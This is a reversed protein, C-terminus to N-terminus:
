QESGSAADERIEDLSYTFGARGLVRKEVEGVDLGLDILIRARVIWRLVDAHWHLGESDLAKEAGGHSTGTRAAATLNGFKPSAELVAEGIKGTSLVLDTIRDGLPKYNAKRLVREAWSIVEDDVGAAQAASVIADVREKHEARTKERGAKALAEASQFTSTYRHETFMFTAYYPGHFLAFVERLDARLPFWRQLLEEFPTPCDRLTLLTPASYSM